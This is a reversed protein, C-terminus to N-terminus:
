KEDQSFIPDVDSMRGGMPESIRWQQLVKAEHQATGSAFTDLRSGDLPDTADGSRAPTESKDAAAAAAAAAAETPRRKKKQASEEQDVKDRKRKEVGKTSQSRSSAMARPTSYFPFPPLSAPDDNKPSTLFSFDAQPSRYSEQAACGRTWPGDGLIKQRHLVSLLQNAFNFHTGDCAM